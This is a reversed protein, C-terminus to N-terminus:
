ALKGIKVSRLAIDASAGDAASALKRIFPIMVEGDLLNSSVLPVSPAVLTASDIGVTFFCRNPGIAATTNVADASTSHEAGDAVHLAYKAKLDACLVILTGMDTANAAAMADQNGVAHSTADIQHLEYKASLDNARTICEALTTPAVVSALSDDAVSDAAHYAWAAGLQADAEHAAFDTLAETLFTIAEALAAVDNVEVRCKLYEGDAIDDGDSDTTGDITNIINVLEVDGDVAVQVAAVDNYSGYANQHAEAKRWGMLCEALASIDGNYLIGEIYFNDTGVTMAYKNSATIDFGPNVEFGTDNELDGELEVGNASWTLLAATQEGINTVSYDAVRSVLINVDNDTTSPTTLLSSPVYNFLFPNATFDEDLLLAQDAVYKVISQQSVMKSASNSAMDNEDLVSTWVPDTGDSILIKDAAGIALASGDNSADGVIMDGQATIITDPSLADIYVKVIAALQKERNGFHKMRAPYASVAGAALEALTVSSAM